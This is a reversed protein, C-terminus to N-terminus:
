WDKSCQVKKISQVIKAKTIMEMLEPIGEPKYKRVRYPKTQTKTVVEYKERWKNSRTLYHRLQREGFSYGRTKFKNQIDKLGLLM